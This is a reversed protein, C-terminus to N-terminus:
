AALQARYRLTAPSVGFDDDVELGNNRLIVAILAFHHVTHSSLVDLERAVSSLMGPGVQVAYDDRLAPMTQMNDIIVCIRAIAVTRSREVSADRKRADYDIRAYEVGDLFCEYFELIHRIHGGIKLHLSDDIEGLLTEAQRLLRINAQIM